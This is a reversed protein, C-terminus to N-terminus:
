PERRIRYFRRHEAPSHSATMIQNTALFTGVLQWSGNMLVSSSELRYSRNVEAKWRVTTGAGTRQISTIRPPPNTVYGPSGIDGGQAASFAGFEGQVSPEAMRQPQPAFRFTVNTPAFAYTITDIYDTEESATPNWLTLEDQTESMSFGDYTVIKLAPPLNEAGWWQRFSDANMKQIFIMSEGPLLVMSGTNTVAGGFTGDTDDFRYGVLQVATTDFNTLEWWDEHGTSPTAMVETIYLIPKRAVSLQASASCTGLYNSALVSYTGASNFDVGFIELTPETAGLIEAGDHWWRYTSLPYGRTVISFTATQGLTVTLDQPPTVIQCPRENTNVMLTAVRSTVANLGNTAVVYYAGAQDPVVNTLSLAPGNADPVSADNFFWQYSPRPFGVAKARFLAIGGADLELDTPEQSFALNIPGCTRGPSGVDLGSSQAVFAECVGPESLVPFEGTIASYTFTYGVAPDGFGVSDVLANNSGWLQVKDDVGLGPFFPRKVVVVRVGILDAPGWWDRFQSENTFAGIEERCFIISEGPLIELGQFAESRASDISSRDTFKYGNLDVVDAGFNTLEWFDVYVVSGNTPTSPTSMVETIALRAELSSPAAILFTAVVSKLAAGFSYDRRAM